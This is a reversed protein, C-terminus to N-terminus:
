LNQLHFLIEEGIQKAIPDYIEPDVNGYESEWNKVWPTVLFTLPVVFWSRYTESRLTFQRSHILNKGRYLRFRIPAQYTARHPVIGLTVINLFVLGTPNSVISFSDTEIELRNESQPKITIKDLASIKRAISEMAFAKQTKWSLDDPTYFGTERQYTAPPIFIQDISLTHFSKLRISREEPLADTTFRQLVCGSFIWAILPFLFLHLVANRTFLFKSQLNSILNM